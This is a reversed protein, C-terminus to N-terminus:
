LLECGFTLLNCLAQGWAKRGLVITAWVKEEDEGVVWVLGRVAQGNTLIYPLVVSSHVPVATSEAAASSWDLQALGARRWNSLLLYPERWSMWWGRLAVSDFSATKFAMSRRVHGDSLARYQAIARRVATAIDTVSSRSAPLPPVGIEDFANLVLKGHLEPVLSRVDVPINLYISRTFWGADSYLAKTLWAVLVDSSSLQSDQVVLADRVEALYTKPITVLKMDEVPDVWQKLNRWMRMALRGWIDPRYWAGYEQIRPFDSTWAALTPSGLPLVSDPDPFKGDLASLWASVLSGMGSADAFLHTSTLGVFTVDEFVTVRAELLPAENDLLDELTHPRSEDRFLPAMQPMDVIVPHPLDASSSLHPPLAPRSSAANYSEAHYTSSWSLPPVAESFETPLIFVFDGHENRGLRCGLNPWHAVLAYLANRLRESDLKRPVVFGYTIFVNRPGVDAKCVPAITCKHETLRRRRRRPQTGSSSTPLLHQSESLVGLRWTAVAGLAFASAAGALIMQHKDM